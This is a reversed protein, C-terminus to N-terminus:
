EEGQPVDIWVQGVITGGPKVKLALTGATVSRTWKQQLVFFTGRKVWRLNVTPLFPVKVAGMLSPQKNPDKRSDYDPIAEGPKPPRPTVSM